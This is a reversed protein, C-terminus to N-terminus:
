LKPQHKGCTSRYGGPTPTGCSVSLWCGPEDCANFLSNVSKCQPCGIISDDADFPNPATLMESELGRWVCENCKIKLDTM